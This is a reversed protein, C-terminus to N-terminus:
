FVLSGRPCLVIFVTFYPYYSGICCTANVCGDEAQVRCLRQSSAVHVMQM